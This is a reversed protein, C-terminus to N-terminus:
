QRRGLTLGCSGTPACCSLAFKRSGCHSKDCNRGQTTSTDRSGSQVKTSDERKAIFKPIEPGSTVFTM